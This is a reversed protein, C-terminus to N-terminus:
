EVLLLTIVFLLVAVFFDFRLQLSGAVFGFSPRTPTTPTRPALPSAPTFPPPPVPPATPPPVAPPPPPPPPPTPVPVITVPAGVPIPVSGGIEYAYVSGNGSNPAGVAFTLESVAVENGFNQDAVPNPSFLKQILNVGSYVYVAGARSVNSSDRPAGVVLVDSNGDFSISYGFRNSIGENSVFATPVV